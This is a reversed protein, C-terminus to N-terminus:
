DKVDETKEETEENKKEEAPEEKSEEKPKIMGEVKQAASKSLRQLIDESLGTNIKVFDPGSSIEIRNLLEGVDPNKAAAGAGLAKFGTLMDALQKNKAAEGGSAKIEMLFSKDRYDFFMIIAKIGELSSMMPNQQSLKKTADPPIVFASWVLANKNATKIVAALAENKLINEAKKQYVDIVKKVMADTGLVATSGDLFAGGAPKDSEAKIGSYLTVGNYVEEKVDSGEKKIKALLLDKNYKLSIVAAAEQKAGETQGALAVALFYIDKQPDLGTEKIFDQYKQYNKDEKIAKDAFATTIGRHVDVMVVGQADKPLLKLMDEAGAAGAAPAGAKKGCAAFSFLALFVVIGLATLKKM